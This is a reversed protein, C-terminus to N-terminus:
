GECDGLAVAIQSIITINLSVHAAHLLMLLGGDGRWCGGAVGALVVFGLNKNLNQGYTSPCVFCMGYLIYIYELCFRWLLVM